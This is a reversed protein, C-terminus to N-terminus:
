DPCDAAVQTIVGVFELGPVFPLQPKVQYLGQVMLLDAHNVGAAEVKIVIEGPQAVPLPVEEVTLNEPSGFSRCLVARMSKEM